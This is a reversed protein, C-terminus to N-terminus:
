PALAGNMCARPSFITCYIQVEMYPFAIVVESIDDSAFGTVCVM